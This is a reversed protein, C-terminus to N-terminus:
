ARRRGFANPYRYYVELTLVSMATAYIAGAGSASSWRDNVLFGGDGCTRQSGDQLSLLADVMAKNWRDWYKGSKRPSDPGDLQNLALSAYYWYYYDISRSDKAGEKIVPPLDQVLKAASRDLIPDSPDHAAFIRICMGLACMTTPHYAFAESYPGALSAGASARDLYGVNGDDATVFKAFDLAGALSEPAVALKSLEASKLAMVCWTTVSTDADYLLRMREPDTASGIEKEVDDRSGYRWGWKSSSSAPSPRQAGQLFDVGRQAPERWYKTGTMGYAESLAMTALAENYMFARDRSFSGDENQRDRLWQLGKKVVEGLRYRKARVPDVLDAKSLHSHGAGLFALLALSTLGEDYHDSVAIKPDLCPNNPDCIDKMSRPSWSGDANQHRCLWLLGHRVAKETAVTEMDPLRGVRTKPPGIRRPRITDTSPGWGRDSGGPGVGIAGSVPPSSNEIDLSKPDGIDKSLDPEAALLPDVPIDFHEDTIEYPRDPPPPDRVFIEPVPIEEPPTEVPHTIRVLTTDVPTPTTMKRIAFLGLGVLAIVHVLVSMVLWPSNKLLRRFSGIPDRVSTM